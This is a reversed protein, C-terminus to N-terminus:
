LTTHRPCATSNRLVLEAGIEIHMPHIFATSGLRIRLLQYAARGMEECSIRVTTLAPTTFQSRLLYDFGVVSIEEPVRIGRQKLAELAGHAMDDTMCIVATFPYGAALLEECLRRGETMSTEQSEVNVLRRDHDGLIEESFLRFARLRNLNSQHDLRGGVFAVRTHGLSKLHQLISAIGGFDDNLVADFHELAASGGSVVVGPKGTRHCADLLNPNTIGVVVLADVEQGSMLAPLIGEEIQDRSLTSLVSQFGDREAEDQFARTIRTFFEEGVWNFERDLLIGLTRTTNPRTARKSPPVYQLANAVEAIRRRTERRVSRSGALALSVTAKSVGAKEAVDAMSVRKVVM